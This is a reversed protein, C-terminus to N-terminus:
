FGGDRRRILGMALLGAGFLTVAGPEPVAIIGYYPGNVAVSYSDSGAAPMDNWLGPTGDGTAAYHWNIATWYEGNNYNNPEGTAANWNAYDVPTGDSWVFDGLHQAGNGDGLVPDHLGIWFVNPTVAGTLFSSTIFQAEAASHISALHGGDQVAEAEAQQWSEPQSTLFYLTGHYALPDAMAPAALAAAAALWASVVISIRFGMLHREEAFAPLVARGPSANCIESWNSLCKFHFSMRSPLSRYTRFTYFIGVICWKSRTDGVRGISFRDIGRCAPMGARNGVCFSMRSRSILATDAAIGPACAGVRM